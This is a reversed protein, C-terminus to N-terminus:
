LRALVPQWMMMWAAFIGTAVFLAALSLGMGMATRAKPGATQARLYLELFALP